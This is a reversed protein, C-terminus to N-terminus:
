FNVELKKKGLIYENFIYNLKSHKGCIKQFDQLKAFKFSFNNLYEKLILYFKEEGTNNRIIHFILAGKYYLPAPNELFLYSKSLPIEKKVNKLYDLYINYDYNLREKFKEKGFKDELALLSSYEALGEVLVWGEKIDPAVLNGWFQHSIEHALLAFLDIEFNEADKKIFDISAKNIVVLSSSAYCPANIRKTLIIKLNNHPIKGFKEEFFKLIYFSYESIKSIIDEYEPYYYISIIKEESYNKKELFEGSVISMVPIKSVTKYHYTKTNQNLEVKYLVGNTIAIQNKPVNLSINATFFNESFVVPYFFSYIDMEFSDKEFGSSFSVPIGSYEITLTFKEGSNFERELYVWYLSIFVKPIKWRQFKLNENGMKINEIKFGSNLFFLIKDTNNLAIFDARCKIKVKKNEPLADIKLDYNSIKLCTYSKVFRYGVILPSDAKYFLTFICFILLTLFQLM